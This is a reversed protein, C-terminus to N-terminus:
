AGLRKTSTGGVWVGHAHGPDSTTISHVHCPMEAITLTHTTATEVKVPEPKRDMRAAINAFDFVLSM